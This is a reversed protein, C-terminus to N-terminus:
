REHLDVFSTKKDREIYEQELIHYKEVLSDPMM